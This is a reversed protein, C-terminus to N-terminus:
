LPPGGAPPPQGAEVAALYEARYRREERAVHVFFLGLVVSFAASLYAGAFDVGAGALGGVLAAGLAVAIVGGLLFVTARQV